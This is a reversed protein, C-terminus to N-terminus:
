DALTAKALLSRSRKGRRRLAAVVRNRATGKAIERRWYASCLMGPVYCLWYLFREPLSETVQDASSHGLIKMQAIYAVRYKLRISLRVSKNLHAKYYSAMGIPARFNLARWNDSTGHDLYDKVLVPRNHYATKFHESIRIWTVTESAFREGPAGPALFQMHIAPRTFEIKDGWIHKNIRCEIHTSVFVNSPFERGIIHRDRDVCIYSMGAIRSDGRVALWDEQVGALVRPLFFDDDDVCTALEGRSIALGSQDAVRKGADEQRVYVVPFDAQDRFGKVRTPTDDNSGDDVIIWEMDNFDQQLLSEFLQPLLHGRNHTSTIISFMM